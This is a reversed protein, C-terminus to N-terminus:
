TATLSGGTLKFAPGTTSTLTSGASLSVVAGSVNVTSSTSDLVSGQVTLQSNHLAILNQSIGNVSVNSSSFSMLPTGPGTANVVSDTASFLTSNSSVTANSFGLLNGALTMTTPDIALLPTSSTSTLSSGDVKLLGSALTFTSGSAALLSGTASSLSVPPGRVEILSNSGTQVVKMNSLEIQADPDTLTFGGVVFLPGATSLTKELGSTNIAILSRGPKTGGTGQAVVLPAGAGSLTVNS